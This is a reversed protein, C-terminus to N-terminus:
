ACEGQAGACTAAAGARAIQESRRALWHEAARRHSDSVPEVPEGALDVRVGGPEALASIYSDKRVYWKLFARLKRRSIDPCALALADLAGLMLPRKPRDKRGIARPFRQSLIARTDSPHLLTLIEVTAAPAQGPAATLEHQLDM